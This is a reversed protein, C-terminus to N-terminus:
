REHGLRVPPGAIVKRDALDLIVTLYLWGQGTAIYTLDSVWKQGPKDATFERNLVNEAISYNHNSETTQVRFKKYMLSRLGVKKMLRAIRNRSAKVGQERLEDAIRPSGYRSQSKGHVQRIHNILKDQNLQRSGVPHKRWYYYGSSSVNLVKCMKEVARRVTPFENAHEKIFRFIERRGQLLHQGGEKTYRTAEASRDMQAERLERQLRRIQQQEDTLTTNDPLIRDNKKHRQRWKSIRGPDIDLERAAEQISGKAYSLEVPVGPRAMEKFAEDFM